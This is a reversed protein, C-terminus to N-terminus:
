RAASVGLGSDTARTMQLVVRCAGDGRTTNSMLAASGAVLLRLMRYQEITARKLIASMNRVLRDYGHKSWLYYNHRDNYIAAIEFVSQNVADIFEPLYVLRFTGPWVYRTIFSSTDFPKRSTAFDLYVRGGPKLYRPLRQMVLHYDSLDEIVGMMSIGDFTRAPEFTFFDQYRVEASYGKENIMTSVFAHQHKSLTIGTGRVGREAACRLMGGWGCGIDLLTDGPQLGLSDLAFELKRRGGAELTDEDHEYIGPTYTRYDEDTYFFQVNEMDYHKAIWAPNLKERGFLLPELRRWAKLWVSRDRLVDRYSLAAIFDGEIDFDGRIYAKAIRLENMSRFARFCSENRIFVHFAPTGEGIRVESGDIMHAVFPVPARKFLNTFLEGLSSRSGSAALTEVTSM